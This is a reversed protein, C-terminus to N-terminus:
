DEEGSMLVVWIAFLSGGTLAQWYAAGEILSGMSGILFAVLSLIIGAASTRM